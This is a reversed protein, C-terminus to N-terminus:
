REGDASVRREKAAREARRIGRYLTAGRYLCSVGFGTTISIPFIGDTGVVALVAAAYLIAAVGMSAMGVFEFLVGLLLRGNAKQLLLGGLILSAGLVLCLGWLLVGIPPLTAEISGPRAEGASITVGSLLCLGMTFVVIPHASSPEPREIVNRM